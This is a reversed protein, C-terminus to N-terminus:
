NENLVPSPTYGSDYMSQLAATDDTIGDGVPEAEPEPEHIVVDDGMCEVCDDALMAGHVSCYTKM